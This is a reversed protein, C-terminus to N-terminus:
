KFLENYIKVWEDFHADMVEPTIMNFHGAQPRMGPPDTQLNPNAPIFHVKQFVAQGEDSLLYNLLLKGANPHPSDKVLAAYNLTESVPEINLWEVPAGKLKAIATLHVGGFLQIPFEGAILQDLVVISAQPVTIIKQASLKRLYEMGKEQGMSMLINGIFSGGGSSLNFSWAMKGKWRPNLLDEYTKPYDAPKVLETNINTGQVYFNVATYYGEPDKNATPYDAAAPPRYQAVINGAKLPLLSQSSDFVDAIRRGAKAENSLKLFVDTVSDRSPVVKIKPYKKMFADSAPQIISDMILTSYWVVSGEKEAAAVLDPDATYARAAGGLMLSVGLAVAAIATGARLPGNLISM